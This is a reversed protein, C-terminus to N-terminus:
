ALDTGMPRVFPVHEQRRALEELADATRQLAKGNEEANRRAEWVGYLQVINPYGGSGRSARAMILHPYHMTVFSSFVPACPVYAISEDALQTTFNMAWAEVDNLFQLPQFRVNAPIQTIWAEAQALMGSQRASETDFELRGSTVLPIPGVVGADKYLQLVAAHRSILLAFSECAKIACATAERQNRSTIDQKQLRLARLGRHAVVALLVNVGAGVAAWTAEATNPIIPIM